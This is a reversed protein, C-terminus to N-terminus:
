RPTALLDKVRILIREKLRSEKHICGKRPNLLGTKKHIYGKDSAYSWFIAPIRTNWIRSSGPEIKIILQNGKKKQSDYFGM